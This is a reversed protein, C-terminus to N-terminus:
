PTPPEPVEFGFMSNLNEFQNSKKFGEPTGIFKIAKMIREAEDDNKPLWVYFPTRSWKDFAATNEVAIKGDLYWYWEQGSPYGFYFMVEHQLEKEQKKSTKGKPLPNYIYGEAGEDTVLHETIYGANDIYKKMREFPSLNDTNM